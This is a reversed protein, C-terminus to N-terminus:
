AGPSSPSAMSPVASAMASAYRRRAWPAVRIKATLTAWHWSIALRMGPASTTVPSVGLRLPIMVRNVAPSIGQRTLQMTNVSPVSMGRTSVTMMARGVWDSPNYVWITPRPRRSYGPLSHRVKISQTPTVPLALRHVAGVKTPTSSFSTGRARWCSTSPMSNSSGSFASRAASQGWLQILFMVVTSRHALSCRYRVWLTFQNLIGSPLRTHLTRSWRLIVM